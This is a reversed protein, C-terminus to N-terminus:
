NGCRVVGLDVYNIETGLGRSRWYDNLSETLIRTGACYALGLLNRIPELLRGAEELSILDEYFNRATRSAKKASWGHL